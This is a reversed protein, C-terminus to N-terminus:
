VFQNSIFFILDSIKLIPGSSSLIEILSNYSIRDFLNCNLLSACYTSSLGFSTFFAIQEDSLALFNKDYLVLTLKLSEILLTILYM